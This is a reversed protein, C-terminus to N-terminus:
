EQEENLVFARKGYAEVCAHVVTRDYLEGQKRTIEEIAFRVGFAPRYPRHSSVAEVVDAVSLIRAELLIEGAVLGHPYGSGDLREHHQYITEAIPWPFKINKLIEYGVRPHEKVFLFEKDSLRSPKALIEAPVAIKGIDHILGAVRIGETQEKSLALELSVANAIQSVRRQHGATFPDRSEVTAGMAEIIGEFSDKLLRLSDAAKLSEELVRRELAEQQLLSQVQRKRHRLAVAASILVQGSQFPKVVYGDAGIELATRAAGRDDTGSIMVMATNPYRELVEKAFDIGPESPLNLDCIVIDFDREEFHERAQRPGASVSCSCGNAKFIHEMLRLISPDEDVVLMSVEKGDNWKALDYVSEQTVAM